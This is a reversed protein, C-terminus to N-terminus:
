NDGGSNLVHFAKLKEYVEKPIRAVSGDSIKAFLNQTFGEALVTNDAALKIKYSYVMKVRSLEILEVCILFEDDFKASKKYSCRVDTIPFVYGLAMLDNLYVGAQRMYEVRGMEFWHFYNSHHVVDMMDTEVFRVRDKIIVM